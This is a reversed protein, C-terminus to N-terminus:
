PPPLDRWWADTVNGEPQVDRITAPHSAARDAALQEIRDREREYMSNLWSAPQGSITRLECAVRLAVMRDWGNVGDFSGDTGTDATLEPCPPLYRLVLTAGAKPTPFFEIQSAGTTRDRKLHFAKPAGEGWTLGNFKYRDAVSALKPLPELRDTAWRVDVALLQYVDTPLAYTATGTALVISTTDEAEYYEHGRAAVLLDYMERLALNILRNCEPDTVFTDSGGPREDAYLRANARVTARTVASAM